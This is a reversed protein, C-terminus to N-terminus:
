SNTTIDAIRVTSPTGESSDPYTQKWPTTVMGQVSAGPGIRRTVKQTAENGFDFVVTYTVAHEEDNRISYDVRFVQKTYDVSSATIQVAKGSGAVPQHDANLRQAFWAGAGFVVAAVTLM